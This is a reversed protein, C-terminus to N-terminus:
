KSLRSELMLTGAEFLNELMTPVERQVTHFDSFLQEPLEYVRERGNWSVRADVFWGQEKPIVDIFWVLVNDGGLDAEVWMELDLGSGYLRCEVRSTIHRINLVTSFNDRVYRSFGDVQEQRQAIFTLVETVVQDDRAIM